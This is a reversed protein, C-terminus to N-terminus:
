AAAETENIPHFHKWGRGYPQGDADWAVWGCEALWAVQDPQLWERRYKLESNTKMEHHRHCLVAGNEVVYPGGQSKPVIHDAEHHGQCIGYESAVAVCLEGRTDRVLRSWEWQLRYKPSWRAPTKKRVLPTRKM